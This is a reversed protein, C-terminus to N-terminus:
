ASGCDGCCNLCIDSSSRRRGTVELNGATETVFVGAGVPLELERLEIKLHGECRHILDEFDAFSQHFAHELFGRLM